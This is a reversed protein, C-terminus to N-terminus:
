PCYFRRPEEGRGRAFEAAQPNGRHAAGPGAGGYLGSEQGEGASLPVRPQRFGAPNTVFVGREAFHDMSLVARGDGIPAVPVRFLTAKEISEGVTHKRTWQQVAARVWETQGRILGNLLDPDEGLDPREIMLTFDKWQQGTLTCFGVLGDKAPEIAPIEVYRPTLFGPELQRQLHRFKNHGLLTCEALSVDVHEGRGTGRATRYASLV